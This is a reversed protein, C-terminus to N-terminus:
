IVVNLIILTLITYIGAIIDDFIVGYGNKFNNDIYNAPFLKVIDFLRFILFILLLTLFDNYIFILDYFILIIFIGLLEDIVIQKSDSSNTFNSFYNIFSNSIFVLIIFITILISLSLSTFKIIPFIILIAALSGWTGSAYKIYGICFISVFLKTFIKM